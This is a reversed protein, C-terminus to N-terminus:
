GVDMLRVALTRQRGDRQKNAVVGCALLQKSSRATAFATAAFDMVDVTVTASPSGAFGYTWATSGDFWGDARAVIAGQAAPGFTFPSETPFGVDGGQSYGRTQPVISETAGAASIKAIQYSWALNIPNWYRNVVAVYLGGDSAPASGGAIGLLTTSPLGVPDLRDSIQPTVWLGNDAFSTNVTGNSRLKTISSGPLGAAIAPAIVIGNRYVSVADAAPRDVSYKKWRRDVGNANIRHIELSRSNQLVIVAGRDYPLVRVKLRSANSIARSVNTLEIRGRTGFTKDPRGSSTGRLVHLKRTKGRSLARTTVYTYQGSQDFESGFVIEGRPIPLPRWKGTAIGGRTKPKSSLAFTALRNGPRWPLGTGDASRGFQGAVFVGRTGIACTQAFRDVPGYSPLKIQRGGFDPTAASATTALAALLAACILAVLSKLHEGIPRSYALEFAIPVWFNRVTTSCYFVGPV